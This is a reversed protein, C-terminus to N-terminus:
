RAPKKSDTQAMRPTQHYVRFSDEVGDLLLFVAKSDEKSRHVDVRGLNSASGAPSGYRVGLGAAM